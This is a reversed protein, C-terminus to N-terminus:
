ESDCTHCGAMSFDVSLGELKLAERHRVIRWFWVDYDWRRSTLGLSQQTHNAKSTINGMKSQPDVDSYSGPMQCAGSNGLRRVVFCGPQAIRVARIATDLRWLFVFFFKEWTM